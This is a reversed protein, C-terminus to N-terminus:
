RLPPGGYPTSGGSDTKVVVFYGRRRWDNAISQAVSVSDVREAKVVSGHEQVEVVYAM